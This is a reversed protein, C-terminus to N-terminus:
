QILKKLLQEDKKWHPDVRVKLSLKVKYPFIDALDKEAEERIQRIMAGGKGIIIGKQTEREVVLEGEYV